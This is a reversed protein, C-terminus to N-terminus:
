SNKSKIATIYYSLTPRNIITEIESLIEFILPEIQRLSSGYEFRDTRWRTPHALMKNIVWCPSDKKNAKGYANDLKTILTMGIESNCWDPLLDKLVIDDNQLGKSVLIDTMIRTHLILSEVVANKNITNIVDLPSKASFYKSLNRTEFYMQLEYDFVIWPDDSANLKNPLFPLVM